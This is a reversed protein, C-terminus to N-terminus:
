PITQGTVTFATSINKISRESGICHCWDLYLLLSPKIVGTVSWNNVNELLPMLPFIRLPWNTNWSQLGFLSSKSSLSTNIALAPTHLGSWNPLGKNLMKLTASMMTWPTRQRTSFVTLSLCLILLCKDFCNSYVYICSVFSLYILAEQFVLDLSLRSNSAQSHSVFHRVCSTSPFSWASFM